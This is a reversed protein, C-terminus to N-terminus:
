IYTTSQNIVLCCKNRMTCLNEARVVPSGSTIWPIPVHVAVIPSEQAVLICPLKPLYRGESTTCELSELVANNSYLQLSLLNSLVACTIVNWTFLLTETMTTAFIVNLRTILHNKCLIKSILQLQYLYVSNAYNFM